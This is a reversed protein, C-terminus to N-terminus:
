KIQANGARTIESTKMDIQASLEGIKTAYDNLKFGM